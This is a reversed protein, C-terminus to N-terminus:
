VRFHFSFFQLFPRSFIVSPLPFEVAREMMDAQMANRRSVNCKKWERNEKKKRFIYGRVSIEEVDETYDSRFFFSPVGIVASSVM